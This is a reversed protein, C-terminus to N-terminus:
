VDRPGIGIQSEQDTSLAALFRMFEIKAFCTEISREL